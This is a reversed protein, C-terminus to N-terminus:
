QLFSEIETQTLNVSEGIKDPTPYNIIMVSLAVLYFLLFLMNSSILFCVVSFLASGNCFALRIILGTQYSPYKEKLTSEPKVSRFIRSSQFYGVPIVIGILLINVIVFTDSIDIKFFSTEKTLWAAVFVFFLSGAVQGIFIVRTVRLALRSNFDDTLM